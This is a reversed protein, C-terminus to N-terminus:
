KNEFDGCWIRMRNGEADERYLEIWFEGNFDTALVYSNAPSMQRGKNVYILRPEADSLPEYVVEINYDDIARIEVMELGVCFEKAANKVIDNYAYSVSADTKVVLRCGKLLCKTISVFVGDAGVQNGWGLFKAKGKLKKKQEM